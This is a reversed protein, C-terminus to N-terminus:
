VFRGNDDRKRHSVDHNRPLGRRIQSGLRGKRSCDLMNDSQTGLFLHNPNFCRRNDCTHCVNMNEPVPQAHHAEWSLIHLLRRNGLNSTTIYGMSHPSYDTVWCEDDSMRETRREIRELINLTM